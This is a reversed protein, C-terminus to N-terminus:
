AVVPTAMQRLRRRLLGFFPVMTAALILGAPAPTPVVDAGVNGGNFENFLGTGIGKLSITDTLSYTNSAQGLLQTGSGSISTGTPSTVTIGTGFLTNSASYTATATATATGPVFYAGSFTANLAAQPVPLNYGTASTSITLNGKTANGNLITTNSMGLISGPQSGPTNTEAFQSTITYGEYAITMQVIQVGGVNTYSYGTISANGTGTITPAVGFTIQNADAAVGNSLSLAFQARAASPAILGAAVAVAATLLFKRFM